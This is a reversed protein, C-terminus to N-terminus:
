PQIKTIKKTLALLCNILNQPQDPNTNQHQFEKMKVSSLLANDIQLHIRIICLWMTAGSVIYHTTVQM